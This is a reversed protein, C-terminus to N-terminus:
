PGAPCSPSATHPGSTGVSNRCQSTKDEPQLSLMYAMHQVCVDTRLMCRKQAYTTESCVDERLMCRRPACMKVSLYNDANQQDCAQMALLLNAMSLVVM